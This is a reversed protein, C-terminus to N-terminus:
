SLTSIALVGFWQLDGKAAASTFFDRRKMTTFTRWEAVIHQRIYHTWPSLGEQFPQLGELQLM